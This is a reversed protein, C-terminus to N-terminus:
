GLSAFCVEVIKAGFRLDLITEKTKCISDTGKETDDM